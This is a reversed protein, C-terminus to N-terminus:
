SAQVTIQKPKAAEAKPLTITLVGNKFQASVKDPQVEGPLTIARSFSPFSRERRHYRAGEPVQPPKREGAITLNKGTVSIELEEPAMGPLEAQVTFKDADESVNLAPYVGPGATEALGSSFSGLLRDMERRLRDMENLAGRWTGWPYLTRTLLM